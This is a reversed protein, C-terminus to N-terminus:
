AAGKDPAAQAVGVENIALSNAQEDFVLM